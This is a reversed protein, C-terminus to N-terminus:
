SVRPIDAWRTTYCPSMMGRRMRWDRNSAPVGEAALRLTGHGWLGNIRDMVRMLAPNGRDAEFLAGQTYRADSLDLLMVGAKQYAYGPKYLRKLGALAARALLRTDDSPDPLPVTLGRQYQPHDEKFPNTRVYVQVAGAVSGQRRLKEAARGIYTTVAEELGALDYVYAGFARSSMIQQKAPAAEELDICPIGRLETVTRELVVSFERRLWKPDADRLDKVNGIGLAKLRPTGRYGVGWVEGVDISALLTDQAVPSLAALDCVGDFEPRKKAAHNALKALTKTAGFGVCVPLGLYQRVRARIDQGYATLDYHGFGKMGLFCEDISYIEQEPSFRGLLAMMRASMDGYLSYNSSKAVIGHQRALDRLQFWPVGMKVGLAKVEQSRAVVCGDNNSLVVVPRGELKPDFVRECSVYFNNGDILAFM